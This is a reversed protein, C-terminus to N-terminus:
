WDSGHSARRRQRIATSSIDERFHAERVEECLAALARPLDLDTLRIFSGSTSRGFVLFRCGRIAIQKVAHSLADERDGYFRPDAIRRLTDVGVIFVAGPFRKSKEEFTAARTLWVTQEPEFQRVRRDIELFDLPPKDANLISIEFQVDTALIEGATQAM